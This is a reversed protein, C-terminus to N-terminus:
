RKTQSLTNFQKILDSIAKGRHGVQAKTAKDMEAFSLEAEPVYFIPDYGFGGSGRPSKLIEGPCLGEAEIVVEGAPNAVALAATFHASRDCPMNQSAARQEAAALEKLLRAIRTADTEAYRASLVGPAGGLATVSLGSDDALTWQGTVRAVAMAKIRANEAFTAGSEEIELGAPMTELAFPLDALLRGFERVKGQNGSAIVLTTISLTTM